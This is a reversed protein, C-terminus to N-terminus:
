EGADVRLCARSARQRRPFAFDGREDRECHGVPLDSLPKHQGFAGHFGMNAADQRLEAVGRAGLDGRPRQALGGPLAAGLWGTGSLARFERVEGSLGSLSARPAAGRDDDHAMRPFRETPAPSGDVKGWKAAPANRASARDHTMRTLYLRPHGVIM